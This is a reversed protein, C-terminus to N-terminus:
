VECKLSDSDLIQYSGPAWNTHNTPGRRGFWEHVGEDRLDHLGIYFRFSGRRAQQFSAFELLDILRDVM